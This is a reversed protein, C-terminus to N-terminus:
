VNSAVAKLLLTAFEDAENEQHKGAGIPKHESFIHGLEHAIAFMQEEESLTDDLFIMKNGNDDQIAVAKSNKARDYLGLLILMTASKSYYYVVCGSIRALYKIANLTM